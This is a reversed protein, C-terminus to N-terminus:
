ALGDDELSALYNQGEQCTDLVGCWRCLPGTTPIPERAETTLEFIRRVGDVTRVLAAELVGETVEETEASASDLYFTALLRPPTGLRVTEILAYFRLDARHTQSRNGTKFDILVKGAVSGEPTGLTLDTRGQFIIRGDHLELRIRGETVPRWKATIPPFTETFAAVREGSLARVEDRELTSCSTLWDALSNDSSSLSKIADDVLDLPHADHGRHISLEIAKHAVTGKVLPPSWSFPEGSEGVFRRECSHVESLAHKSVFLSDSAGIHAAIDALERTMESRLRKGIAPDFEPREEPPSGLLALTEAQTPNLARTGDSNDYRSHVINM